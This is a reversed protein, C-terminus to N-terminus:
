CIKMSEIIRGKQLMLRHTICPLIEDEHHTVYVLKTGTNRGIYELVSLIKKRNDRDLGDCPEDLFLLLPSKVVARAILTM